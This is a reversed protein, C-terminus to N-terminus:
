QRNEEYRMNFEEKNDQLRCFNRWIIRFSLTLIEKIDVLEHQCCYFRMSKASSHASRLMIVIQLAFELNNQENTPQSTKPRQGKSDSEYEYKMEKSTCQMKKDATFIDPM